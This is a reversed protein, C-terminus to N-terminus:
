LITRCQAGRKSQFENLVVDLERRARAVSRRPVLRGWLSRTRAVVRYSLETARPATRTLRALPRAHPLRELLVPAAAGGSRLRGDEGLIHWSAWRREDSLHGLYADAEESGIPVARVAGAPASRLVRSVIWSCVGCGADYFLIVEGPATIAYKL